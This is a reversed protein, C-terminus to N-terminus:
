YGWGVNSVKKDFWMHVFGLLMGGSSPKLQAKEDYNFGVVYKLSRGFVMSDNGTWRKQCEIDLWNMFGM